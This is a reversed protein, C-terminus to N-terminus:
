DKICFIKGNKIKVMFVKHLGQHDNASFDIKEGIGLDVNRFNQLTEIFKERTPNLGTRQLALIFLKANLFGEFSFSSPRKEPFYKKLLTLHEQISSFKPNKCLPFVQTIFLEVHIDKLCHALDSVRGIVSLGFFIIDKEGLKYAEKIFSICVESTGILAVVDPNASLIQHVQKKVDKVGRLYSAKSVIDLDYKLLCRKIGELGNLGYADKQYFVAFRKKGKKIFYDVAVRCEDWYSPRLTFVYKRVPRRIETTGTIPFLLPIKEKECFDIITLTTPTGVLSILAFVKDKYILRKVNGIMLPPNYTDDYVKLIIRRGNIGGLENIYRFYAEMGALIDRGVYAVQGSLCLSSGIVIRDPYVGPESAKVSSLAFIWLFISFLQYFKYKTLM